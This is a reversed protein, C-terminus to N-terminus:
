LLSRLYLYCIFYEELRKMKSIFMFVLLVCKVKNKIGHTPRVVVGGILKNVNLSSSFFKNTESKSVLM